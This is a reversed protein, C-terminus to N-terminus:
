TAYANGSPPVPMEYFDCDALRDIGLGAAPRHWRLSVAAQLPSPDRPSVVLVSAAPLPEATLKELLPTAEPDAEGELAALCQLLRLAHERGTTGSVVVPAASAVALVLQDGKQRCWEWCITAALSVVAELGDGRAPDVVLVLNDTPVDEFEWVM